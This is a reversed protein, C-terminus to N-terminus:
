YLEEGDIFKIKLKEKCLNSVKEIVYEPLTKSNALYIANLKYIQWNSEM